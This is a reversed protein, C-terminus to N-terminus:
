ILIEEEEREMSCQGFRKRKEAAEGLDLTPRALPWEHYIVVIGVGFIFNQTIKLIEM